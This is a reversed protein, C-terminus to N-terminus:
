GNEDEAGRNKFFEGESNDEQGLRLKELDIVRDLVKMKDTLTYAPEEGPKPRKTVEDLLDNLAKVLKPNIGKKQPKSM